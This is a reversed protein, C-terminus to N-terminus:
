KAFLCVELLTILGLPVRAGDRRAGVVQSLDIIHELPSVFDFCLKRPFRRGM